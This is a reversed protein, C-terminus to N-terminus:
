GRAKHRVVRVSRKATCIRADDLPPGGAQAFYGCALRKTM